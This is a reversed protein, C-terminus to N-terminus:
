KAELAERAIKSVAEAQVGIRSQSDRLIIKLAKRLRKVEALLEPIDQRSAAIFEGNQKLPLNAGVGRMRTLTGAEDMGDDAVMQMHPGWIFCQYHKDLEWPGPTAKEARAAIESLREDTM